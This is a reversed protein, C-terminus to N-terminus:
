EKPLKAILSAGELWVLVLTVGVIGYVWAFSGVTSDSGAEGLQLAVVALLFAGLFVAEWAVIKLRIALKM